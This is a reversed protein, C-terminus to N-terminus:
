ALKESALISELFRNLLETLDTDKERLQKIAERADTTLYREKIMIDNM